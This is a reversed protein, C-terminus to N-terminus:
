RTQILMRRRRGEAAVIGRLASALRGVHGTTSGIGVSARVADQGGTLRRVLPHACFRGHRVAIAHEDALSAAIQGAPLGRVTFSVIGLRPASDDWMRLVSLGPLSALGDRLARQLRDEHDRLRDWGIGTLTECAAALAVAGILNPTGGEHRAPGDAWQVGDEGVHGAAGGGPLYPPAARLWDSRGILAGSGFPAYLKHGSLAVYDLGLRAMGLPRHPALQAADVAIRAGHEHAVAALEALPWLEGTVNSAGTVCVLRPGVPAARLAADVARVADGPSAPDPLRRVTGAATRRWPLMASHHDTGFGIVTTGGPLCRALLNVADTTNRTFVATHGPGAGAFRLVTARAREYAATCVQAPRGAGRHVSAYWPLIEEVAHRVTALCPATAAIDLNALPLEGGGAVPLRLGAGVLEALPQEATTLDREAPEREDLDREAPEREDLGAGIPRAVTLSTV